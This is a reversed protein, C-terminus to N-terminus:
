KTQFKILPICPYDENNLWERITIDPKLNNRKVYTRIASCGLIEGIKFLQDINDMGKFFVSKRFIKM